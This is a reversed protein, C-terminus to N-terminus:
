TKDLLERIRRLLVDPALPKQLFPRQEDVLVRRVAEGDTYGSTFLIPLDPYRRALHEALERGGMEPMVLDTIILNAGGSSELWELAERGNAVEEVVYGFERLARGIVRRVMPEDEVLLVTEGGKSRLPTAPEAEPQAAQQALPLYTKFTTGLGPESYAWIFGNCQKVIGYVTSLGLGSGRGVAKTTFFPEFVRDLTQREMGHGTDTIAIMVYRGPTVQTGEKGAAYEETLDVTATEIAVRGGGPMADRANITLNLLVQDLQGSDALVFDPAAELRVTLGHDALTRRLIPELQRIRANVQLVQLRLLQRSSFALLQRTIGATREAARQIHEVDQRAEDPLGELSLLFEACGLIVSMQNNAEHAVGGALQGVAELRDVQRLQQEVRRRETIDRQSGWARLLLGGEFIGIFNNLFYREHGEVDREHSEAEILRYGERIFSRLFDLNHPDTRPVLDGLRAGTLDSAHELGYMRAMADNCEGLVGHAYFHEIQDDESLSPPMPVELEFRWVGEATQEIFARYREESARLAQETQKRLTIDKAVGIFGIPERQRGRVLTTKVDLWVAAGDKRRGRWEGSFDEGELIRRLDAALRPHEEEPYLREPTSGLMEAESYGFIDTAGQNWYRIRGTLDTYIVSDRVAHLLHSFFEMERPTTPASAM